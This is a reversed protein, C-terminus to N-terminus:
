RRILHKAAAPKRPQDDITLLRRHRLHPAGCRRQLATVAARRRQGLIKGVETRVMHEAPHYCLPDPRPGDRACDREIRRDVTQPAMVPRM